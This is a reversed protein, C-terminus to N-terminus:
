YGEDYFAAFEGDYSVGGSDATVQVTIEGSVDLDGELSLNQSGGAALTATDDALVTGGEDLVEVTVESSGAALLSNLELELEFRDVGEFTEFDDSASQSQNGSAPVAYVAHTPVEHMENVAIRVQATDSLADDQGAGDDTVTVNVTYEGGTEYTHQVRAEEVDTVEMTQGDGFEFRWSVIEGNPDASSQADFTFSDDTWGVDRTTELVAQPTQDDTEDEDLDAQDLCGAFAVLALMPVVFLAKSTLRRTQMDADGSVVYDTSCKTHTERAEFNPVAKSVVRCRSPLPM